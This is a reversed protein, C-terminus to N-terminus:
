QRRRLTDPVFIRPGPDKEELLHGYRSGLEQRELITLDRKMYDEIAKRLERDANPDEPHEFAYVHRAYVARAFKDGRRALKGIEPGILRLLKRLEEAPMEDIKM